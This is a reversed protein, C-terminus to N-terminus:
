REHRRTSEQWGNPGGQSLPYTLRLCGGLNLIVPRAGWTLRAPCLIEYPKELLAVVHQPTLPLRPLLSPLLSRGLLPDSAERRDGVRIATLM